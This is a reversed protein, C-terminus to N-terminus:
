AVLGLKRMSTYTWPASAGVRELETDFLGANAVLNPNEIVRAVGPFAKLFNRQHHGNVWYHHNLFANRLNDRNERGLQHGTTGHMAAFLPMYYRIGAYLECVDLPSHHIARTLMTGHRSLFRHALGWILKGAPTGNLVGTSHEGPIRLVWFAADPAHEHMRDVDVPKMIRRSEHESLVCQYRLVNRALTHKDAASAHGPGAVPDVAFINVNIGATVPDKALAHALMHCTVAGRSWGAMNVTTIPNNTMTFRIASMADAVNQDWGHGFLSGRLVKFPGSGPTHAGSGAVHATSGPGDHIMWADHMSYNGPRAEMGSTISALNGILEDKRERNFGTGCFYVTFVRPM